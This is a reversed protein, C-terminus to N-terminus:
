EEDDARGERIERLVDAIRKDQKTQPGVYRRPRTRTKPALKGGRAAKGEPMNCTDSTHGRRGCLKCRPIADKVM